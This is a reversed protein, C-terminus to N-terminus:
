LKTVLYVLLDKLHDIFEKKEVAYKTIFQTKAIVKDGVIFEISGMNQGKKIPAIKKYDINCNIRINQYEEQNLPLKITDVPYIAVDNRKGKLVDIMTYLEENNILEYRKYNQYAYDLIEKSSQARKNKTECGLVVSIYNDDERKVSTVLCRGAKNTFGTKVGNCGEYLHLLENTNNFCKGDRITKSKTAVIKSFTDNQMAYCAINALDYATTYHMDKDLGHPNIFHTDNANLEQAKKNMMEVFNQVSGGIHEAIAIAADNGSKMLLGYMLDELKYIENERLKIVSGGISAARKSIKVDDQLNGNELAVIATMIKTTSAMPRKQYANKEYLVRGTKCDIVIASQAEVNPINTAQKLFVPYNIDEDLIDDCFGLITINLLINICVLLSFIKKM